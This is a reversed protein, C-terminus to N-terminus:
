QKQFLKASGLGYSGRLFDLVAVFTARVSARDGHKLSAFLSYVPFIIFNLVLPLRRGSKKFFLLNNRVRFYTYFPSFKGGMAAAFKHYIKAQPIVVIKYGARKARTCFDVDEYNNFYDKDLLGIKELVKRKVLLCCGSVWDITKVDKIQGSDTQGYYYHFPKGIVPYYGGGAFWIKNRDQYFMIKPSAVGISDDDRMASLLRDLFDKEVITDNNLLLIYEAGQNLAVRIGINNGEAFGLNEGNRLLRVQPFEKELEGPSGDTSGNDVLIIPAANALHGLSRLCEATDKLQNWNLIVIATKAM